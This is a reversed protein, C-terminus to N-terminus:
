HGHRAKRYEDSEDDPRDGGDGELDRYLDRLDHDQFYNFASTAAFGIGLTTVTIPASGVSLLGGGTIAGASATSAGTGPALGGSDGLCVKSGTQWELHRGRHLRFM